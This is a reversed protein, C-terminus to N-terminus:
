VATCASLRGPITAVLTARCGKVVASVIRPCHSSLLVPLRTASCVQAATLVSALIVYCGLPCCSSAHGAIMLAYVTSAETPCVDTIIRGQM